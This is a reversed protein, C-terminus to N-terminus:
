VHILAKVPVVSELKARGELADIEALFVCDKVRVPIEKGEICVKQSNLSEIIGLATGGTALIDDFFTLNLVGDQVVGAAIDSLRYFIQDMGYEKHINVLVLDGENHPLKGRKRLPILNQIRETSFLLPSGFLFGRAEPAAINPCDCLAGLDHCLSRFVKKNQLLPMLDVFNVGKVPFDPYFKLYENYM